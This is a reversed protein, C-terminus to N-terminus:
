NNCTGVSTIVRKSSGRWPLTAYYKEYHITVPTRSGQLEQLQHALQQDTISFLEPHSYVRSTDAVADASVVQAEFTKFILGRKEVNVVYGHIMADEVYPSCYRLYFAVSLVAVGIVATWILIRRFPHRNHHKEATTETTSESDNGDSSSGFDITHGNSESNQAPTEDALFYDPKDDDLM